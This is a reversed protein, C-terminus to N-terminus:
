KYIEILKETVQSNIVDRTKLIMACIAKDNSVGHGIIVTSNVGLVPTGGYNEFNFKEFFANNLNLEKAIHYFGEAEKLVVNGTFGDCVVVDAPCNGFLQNGEINGIFNFETNDKMLDYASKVVLNGKKEEEGINLLAVKPNEIGFVRNAYVSGIRGYQFLVDPRCDPNIGVDLLLASRNTYQPLETSICPRIVGPIAKITYMTAVLMAGTNGASAFGDLKKKYLMTFGIAISSNPKASFAKAPNEGMEISETTHVIEFNKADFKERALIKLIQEQDGILVLQVDAPLAKSALIAGLVTAEPAFDGGMVDLGIRM